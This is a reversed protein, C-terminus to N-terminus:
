NQEKGQFTMLFKLIQSLLLAGAEPGSLYQERAMECFVTGQLHDLACEYGKCKRQFMGPRQRYWQRMMVFWEGGPM